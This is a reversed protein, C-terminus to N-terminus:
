QLRELTRWVVHGLEHGALPLILPNQCESAPIGIFIFEPLEPLAVPYTFPSFNWESSLVVAATQDILESSLIKIPFYLEFANRINSSRLLLGLFVKLRVLIINIRRCYELTTNPQATDDLSLLREKEQNYVELIRKLARKSDLHPYDGDLLRELLAIASDIKQLCFDKDSLGSPM